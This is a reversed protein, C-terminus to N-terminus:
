CLKPLGRSGYYYTPSSVYRERAMKSMQGRMEKCVKELEIMRTQMKQLNFSSSGEPSHHNSAAGWSSMYSSSSEPEAADAASTRIQIKSQQSFLAQVAVGPPIRPNKALDKCAELTLKEYNLCRCLRTREEFPLNPHSELYIDLARYVGDYCDRASDPLSEAMALFKSIKLSHDPSIERLYKDVLKGVKKMRQLSIEGDEESVFVRVLRMVLNVDYAGGQERGSVLLDDLTAADLMSGILWELKERSEKEIGLRSVMRLVWLLGRCSFLNRGTIAVGHIATDAIGGYGGNHNRPKASRLYHLLFRTIILNKNDSGYSGLEKMMKEIIGPALITLDEFWWERRKMIEPTKISLCRFSSNDTSSSCSPSLQLPPSASLPIDSNASIKALLCAILKQLLGSSNVADFFPECSRLSLLIEDWTWDFIGDLFAEAQTFLNCLAIEETMELFFAASHLLCINSPSMLIRGHNYCFRSALEFAEGGGPFDIIRIISGKGHTRGKGHKAMKRLKGSYCCIIRKNLFFTHHGNIQIKLDFLEKM